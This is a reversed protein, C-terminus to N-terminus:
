VMNKWLYKNKKIKLKNPNVQINVVMSKLNTQKSKNKYEELKLPNEVGYRELNTNKLKITQEKYMCLNCLFIKNKNLACLSKTFKGLCNINKCKGIIKTERNINDNIDNEIILNYNECLEKLKLNNKNIIKNKINIEM